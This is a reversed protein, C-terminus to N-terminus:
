TISRGQALIVTSMPMMGNRILAYQTTPRNTSVWNHVIPAHDFLSTAYQAWKPPINVPPRSNGNILGAHTLSNWHMCGTGSVTTCIPGLGAARVALSSLRRQSQSTAAMLNGGDTLAT